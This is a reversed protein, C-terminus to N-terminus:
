GQWGLDKLEKDSVFEKLYPEGAMRTWESVTVLFGIPEFQNVRRIYVRKFSLVRGIETFKRRLAFKPTPPKPM